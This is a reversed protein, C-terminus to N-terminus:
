KWLKQPSLEYVYKWKLMQKNIVFPVIDDVM